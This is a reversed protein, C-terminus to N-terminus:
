CFRHTGEPEPLDGLTQYLALELLDYSRFGYSRKTTVRAKNNFGEVAGLAIRGRARFWNLLLGRRARLTKAVKKMAPLRSRMVRKCWADLFKAAWAPSIYTWFFQFDEKLLYARVTKLNCALLDKLRIEQADTLNEPPKLLCWRTATLLPKKGKAKLQKVEKPGKRSSLPHFPGPRAWRPSLPHGHPLAAQQPLRGRGEM